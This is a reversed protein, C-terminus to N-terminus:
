LYEVDIQLKDNVIDFTKLKKGDLKLQKKFEAKFDIGLDDDIENALDIGLLGNLRFSGPPNSLIAKTDQYLSSGVKFNGNEFVLDDDTGLIIDNM